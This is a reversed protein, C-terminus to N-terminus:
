GGGVPIRAAIRGPEGTLALRYAITVLLEGPNSGQDVEVRDLLIRKEHTRLTQTIADHARARTELTNPQHLLAELGAGLLPRMLQEGPTTRLLAEITERVSRAPDPWNLRGEADPVPLLPWGVAVHPLQPRRTTLVPGSM